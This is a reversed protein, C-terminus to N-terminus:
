LPSRVRAPRHLRHDRAPHHRPGAGAVRHWRRHSVLAVGFIVSLVLIFPDHRGTRGALLRRPAASVTAALGLLVAPQHGAVRVPTSTSSRPSVSPSRSSPSRRRPAWPVDRRPDARGPRRRRDGSRAPRARFRGVPGTGFATAGRGRPCRCGTPRRVGFFDEVAERIDGVPEFPPLDAEDAWQRRPRSRPRRRAMDADVPPASVRRGSRLPAVPGPRRCRTRSLGDDALRAEPELVPTQEPTFTVEEAPAAADTDGGVQPVTGTAPESWHPLADDDDDFSVDDDGFVSRGPAVNDDAADGGEIIRFGEFDENDDTM